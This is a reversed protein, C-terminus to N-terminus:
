GHRNVENNQVMGGGCNHHTHQKTLAKFDYYNMYLDDDEDDSEIRVGQQQEANIPTTTSKVQAVKHKLIHSIHKNIESEISEFSKVQGNTTTNQPIATTSRVIKPSVKTSTAPTTTATNAALPKSLKKSDDDTPSTQILTKSKVSLDNILSATNAAQAELKDYTSRLDDYYHKKDNEEKM